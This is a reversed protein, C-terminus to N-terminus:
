ETKLYKLFIITFGYTLILAILIWYIFSPVKYTFIESIFVIAFLIHFVGVQFRLLNLKWKVDVLGEERVFSMIQKPMFLFVSIFIYIGTAILIWYGVESKLHFETFMVLISSFVLFTGIINM